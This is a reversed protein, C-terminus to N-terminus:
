ALHIHELCPPGACDHPYFSSDRLSPVFGVQPTSVRTGVFVGIRVESITETTSVVAYLNLEERIERDRHPIVPVSGMDQVSLFQAEHLAPALIFAVLCIVPPM